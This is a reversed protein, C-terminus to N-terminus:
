DTDDDFYDDTSTHINAFAATFRPPLDPQDEDDPYLDPQDEGDDNRVPLLMVAGAPERKVQVQPQPVYDRGPSIGQAADGPCTRGVHPTWSTDKPVKRCRWCGGVASLREKEADTLPPLRPQTASVSPSAQSLRPAATTTRATGEAVLSDWQMAMLAVLNDFNITDIDFDPMAMIRLILMHHAHFLLQYKYIAVSIVSTGVANRADALAAAYDLFPLGAQSCRFFTRLAMLKYGKPMFRSRIQKEFDKWSTLKLYDSRGASWWAAMAPEQMQTGVMRIKTSVSLEPSTAAKTAAYIEFADECQGLFTEIATPTLPGTFPSILKSASM